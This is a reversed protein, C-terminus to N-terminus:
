SLLDKYTFEIFLLSFVILPVGLVIVMFILLFLTLIIDIM